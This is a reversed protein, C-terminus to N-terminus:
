AYSIVIAAGPIVVYVCRDRKDHYIEWWLGRMVLVRVRGFSYIRNM